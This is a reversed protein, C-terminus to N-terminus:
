NISSGDKILLIRNGNEDYGIACNSGSKDCNLKGFINASVKRDYNVQKSYPSKVEYVKQNIIKHTYEDCLIGNMNVNSKTLIWHSTKWSQNSSQSKTELVDKKCATFMIGGALIVFFVKKM